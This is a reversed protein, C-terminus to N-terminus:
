LSHVPCNDPAALHARISRGLDGEVEGLVELCKENAVIYETNVCLGRCQGM